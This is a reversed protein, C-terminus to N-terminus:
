RRSGRNSFGTRACSEQIRPLRAPAFSQGHLQYHGNQKRNAHVPAQAIATIDRVLVTFPGGRVIFPCGEAVVACGRGAHDAALQDGCSTTELRRGM